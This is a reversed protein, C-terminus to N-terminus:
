KGDTLPLLQHTLVSAEEGRLLVSTLPTSSQIGTAWLPLWSVVHM